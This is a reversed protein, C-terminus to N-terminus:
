GSVPVNGGRMGGRNRYRNSYYYPPVGFIDALRGGWRYYENELLDPENDRLKIDGLGTAALRSQAAVLRCEIDDMVKLIRRVQDLSDELVNEMAKEVLFLTQIPRPLGFQLSTVSGVGLYGLHYKVRGKEAPTLSM